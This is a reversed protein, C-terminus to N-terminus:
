SCAAAPAHGMAAHYVVGPAPVASEPRAAVTAAMRAHIAHDDGRTPPTGASAASRAVHAHVHTSVTARPLPVVTRDGRARAALEVLATAAAGDCMDGHMGAQRENVCADLLHRHVRGQREVAARCEERDLLGVPMTLVAPPSHGHGAHSSPGATSMPHQHQDHSTHNM